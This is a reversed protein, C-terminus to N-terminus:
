DTTLRIALVRAWLKGTVLFTQTEEVFAIGNLVAGSDLPRGGPVALDAGNIEGTVEGTFKDIRVIRDTQYVNAFIHDGVCELENLQHLPFDNARVEIEATIEFTTPDRQLLTSSGNSMFLSSGDFCLGWGEGSYTHTRTLELTELDYVLAVGAKWTLQVLESGVRALGEAFYVSDLPVEALVEGTQAEVRRLSSMGYQGSSEYLHGEHLVCGSLRTRM